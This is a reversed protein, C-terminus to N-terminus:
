DCIWASNLQFKLKMKLKGLQLCHWLLAYWCKIKHLFSTILLSFKKKSEPHLAYEAINIFIIRSHQLITATFQVIRIKM